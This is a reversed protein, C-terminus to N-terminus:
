KKSMVLYKVGVILIILGIFSAWTLVSYYDNLLVLAGLIIMDSSCKVDMKKNKGFM